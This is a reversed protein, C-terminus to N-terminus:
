YSSLLDVMPTEFSELTAEVGRGAANPSILYVLAPFFTVLFLIKM